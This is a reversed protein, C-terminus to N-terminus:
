IFIDNVSYIMFFMCLSKGGKGMAPRSKLRVM